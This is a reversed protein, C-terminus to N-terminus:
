IVNRREKALRVVRRGISEYESRTLIRLWSKYSWNMCHKRYSIGATEVAGGWSGFNLIAAAFLGGYAINIRKSSLREGKREIEKIKQIIKAKGWEETARVDDYDLGLANIANKWSGFLKFGASLLNDHGHLRLYNNYLPVRLKQLKKVEKRFHKETWIKLPNLDRSEFGAMKLAKRYGDIGFYRKAAVYLGYDERCVAMTNIPLAKQHRKLIANVIEKKNWSRFPKRVRVEDYLYGSAEVSREWTGFYRKGAAHLNRYYLQVYNSNIRRTSKYLNRIEKIVRQKSWSRSKAM